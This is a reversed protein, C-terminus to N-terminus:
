EEDYFGKALGYDGIKVRNKENLFINQPKLDRHVIKNEHMNIIGDLM